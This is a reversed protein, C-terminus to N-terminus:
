SRRQRVARFALSVLGVTTAIMLVTFGAGRLWGPTLVGVAPSAVLAWGTEYALWATGVAILLLAVALGPRM